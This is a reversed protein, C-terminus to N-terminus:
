GRDLMERIACIVSVGAANDGHVCLTKAALELQRGTATTVTKGAMLQKAQALTEEEALVAGTESRPLLTGDDQYRRDAFAEPWEFTDFSAPGMLPRGGIAERIAAMVAPRQVMDHYLAGHPKVFEVEAFDTLSNVQASVWDQIQEPSAEMTVRGFNEPDPYGPHAGISVGHQRALEVTSQMLARSGAHAACAINAQDIFPLVAVECGAGEALDCNLKITAM